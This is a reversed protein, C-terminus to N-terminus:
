IPFPNCIQQVIIFLVDHILIDVYLFVNGGDVYILVFSLLQVWQTRDQWKVVDILYTFRSLM